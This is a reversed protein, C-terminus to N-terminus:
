EMGTKLQNIFTHIDRSKTTFSAKNVILRTSIDGLKDLVLLGNEQLTTGTEMIDVIVDALGILPALEVSGNLKIVEAPIGRRDFYTRAVVPYKSAVMIKQAPDSPLHQKGALIFQCQGLALDLLDYVDAAREMINDKGTVGADAAGKEVYAPVDLPKVLILRLQRQDDSFILKRSQPHFDPFRYGAQELLELVSDATRGKALALTIVAM